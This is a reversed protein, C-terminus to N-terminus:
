DNPKTPENEEPPKKTKRKLGDIIEGGFIGTLLTGVLVWAERENNRRYIMWALTFLLIFAAVHLHFVKVEFLEFIKNSGEYGQRVWVSRFYRAAAIIIGALLALFVYQDIEAHTLM